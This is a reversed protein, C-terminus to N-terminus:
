LDQTVSAVGNGLKTIAFESACRTSDGLRSPLELVVQLGVAACAFSRLVRESGLLRQGLLHRLACLPM